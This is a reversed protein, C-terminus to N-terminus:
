LTCHLWLMVETPLLKILHEVGNSWSVDASFMVTVICDLASHVIVSYCWLCFTILLDWTDHNHIRLISLISQNIPQQDKVSVSELRLYIHPWSLLNSIQVTHRFVLCSEKRGDNTNYTWSALSSGNWGILLNLPMFVALFLCQLMRMYNPACNFYVISQKSVPLIQHRIKYGTANWSQKEIIFLLFTWAYVACSSDGRMDKFTQESIPRKKLCATLMEPSNSCWPKQKYQNFVTIDNEETQILWIVM